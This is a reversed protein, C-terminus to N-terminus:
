LTLVIYSPSMISLALASPLVYVTISNMFFKFSRYSKENSISLSRLDEIRAIRLKSIIEHLTLNPKNKLVKKMRVYEYTPSKVLTAVNREMLPYRITLGMKCLRTDLSALYSDRFHVLQTGISFISILAHKRLQTPKQAVIM